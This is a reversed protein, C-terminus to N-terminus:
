SARRAAKRVRTDPIPAAPHTAVGAVRRLSMQVWPVTRNAAAAIDRYREGDDVAERVLADSDNILGDLVLRAENIAAAKAHIALLIDNMMDPELPPLASTRVRAAPRGTRVTKKKKPRIPTPDTPAPAAASKKPMMLDKETIM